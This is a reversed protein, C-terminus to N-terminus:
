SNHVALSSKGFAFPVGIFCETLERSSLENAVRGSWQRCSGYNVSAGLNSERGKGRLRRTWGRISAPIDRPRKRHTALISQGSAAFDFAPQIACRLKGDRDLSFPVFVSEHNDRPVHGSLYANRPALLSAFMEWM